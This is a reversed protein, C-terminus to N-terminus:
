DQEVTECIGNAGGKGTYSVSVYGDPEVTVSITVGSGKAEFYSESFKKITAEKGNILVPGGESAQVEINGPCTANLLPIDAHALTACSMLLACVLLRNM